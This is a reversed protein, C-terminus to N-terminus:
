RGRVAARPAVARAAVTRGTPRTVPFFPSDRPLPAVVRSQSYLHLLVEKAIRFERSDKPHHDVSAMFKKVISSAVIGLLDGKEGSYGPVNTEWGVVIRARDVAWHVIDIYYKEVAYSGTFTDAALAACAWAADEDSLEPLRLVFAYM